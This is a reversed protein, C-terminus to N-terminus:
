PPEQEDPDILSDWNDPMLGPLLNDPVLMESLRVIWALAWADRIASFLFKWSLAKL